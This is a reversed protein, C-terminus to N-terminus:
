VEVLNRVVEVLGAPVRIEELAVKIDGGLGALERALRSM